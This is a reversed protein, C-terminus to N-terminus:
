NWKADPVENPASPRSGIVYQFRFDDVIMAQIRAEREEAAAQAFQETTRRREYDLVCFDYTLINTPKTSSPHKECVSDHVADVSLDCTPLAELSVQACTRRSEYDLGRQMSWDTIDDDAGTVMVRKGHWKWADPNVTMRSGSPRLPRAPAARLGVPPRAVLALHQRGPRRRKQSRDEGPLARDIDEMSEKLGAQAGGSALHNPVNTVKEVDRMPRPQQVNSGLKSSDQNPINARDECGM